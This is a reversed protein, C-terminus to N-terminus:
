SARLKKGSPQGARTQRLPASAVQPVVSALWGRLISCREWGGSATPQWSSMVLSLSAPLPAAGQLSHLPPPLRLHVHTHPAPPPTHSKSTCTLTPPPPPALPSTTALPPLQLGDLVQHLLNVGANDM